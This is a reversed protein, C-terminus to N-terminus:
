KGTVVVVLNVVVGLLAAVAFRMIWKDNDEGKCLRELVNAAWVDFVDKTVLRADTFAELRSIRREHDQYEPTM